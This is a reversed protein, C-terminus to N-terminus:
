GGAPPVKGQGPARSFLICTKSDGPLYGAQNIRLYIPEAEPGPFGHNGLSLALLLITLYSQIMAM